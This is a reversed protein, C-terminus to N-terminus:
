NSTGDAAHSVAASRCPSGRPQCGHAIRLFRLAPLHTLNVKCCSSHLTSRVFGGNASRSPSASHRWFTCFSALRKASIHLAMLQWGSTVLYATQVRIKQHIRPKSLQKNGAQEGPSTPDRRHVLLVAVIGVEIHGGKRGPSGRTFIPRIAPLARRSRRLPRKSHPRLMLLRFRTAEIPERWHYVRITLPYLIDLTNGQLLRQLAELILGDPQRRRGVCTEHFKQVIRASLLQKTM